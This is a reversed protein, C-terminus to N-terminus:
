GQYRLLPRYEDPLQDTTDRWEQEGVAERLTTLVARAREAAQEMPVDERRAIERLFDELSLARAAAGSETIGRELAARQPAPLRAALDEAQGASIRIALAELVAETAREAGMPDVDGRDAVRGLFEDASMGPQAETEGPVLTSAHRVAEDLIPDFDKPLESRLDHFEDPGVSRFLASLVATADREAVPREVHAREAVRRLFEDAAFPEPSGGPSVCSRLEEPLREAIDVAEGGSIRESLAQLTACSVREAEERQIHADDQVTSIFGDYTMVAM